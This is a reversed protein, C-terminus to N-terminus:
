KAKRPVFYNRTTYEGSQAQYKFKYELFKNNEKKLNIEIEAEFLVKEKTAKTKTMEITQFDMDGNFRFLVQATNFGKKANGGPAALELVLNAKGDAPIEAPPTHGQSIGGAVCGSIFVIFLLFLM